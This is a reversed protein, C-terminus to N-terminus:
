GAYRTISDPNCRPAVKTNCNIYYTPLMSKIKPLQIVNDHSKVNNLPSAAEPQQDVITMVYNFKINEFNFFDMSWLQVAIAKNERICSM